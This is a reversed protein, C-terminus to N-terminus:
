SGLLQNIRNFISKFKKHDSTQIHMSYFTVTSCGYDGDVSSFWRKDDRSDNDCIGLLKARNILWDLGYIGVEYIPPLYTNKSGWTQVPYFNNTQIDLYGNAILEGDHTYTEFGYSITTAM